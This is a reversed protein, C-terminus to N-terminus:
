QHAHERHRADHEVGARELSVRSTRRRGSWRVYPTATLASVILALLIAPVVLNQGSGNTPNTSSSFSMANATAIAVAVGPHRSATSLALVAREASSPGGLFHGAVLGGATVAVISLLTGDGVLTRFAPWARVVILVVGAALVLTALMALPKGARAASPLWHRVGLGVILPGLVTLAVTKVIAGVPTELPVGRWSGFGWLWAPIIVVALLSTAVLLGITYAGAGGAKATRSPLFPPVPSVALALLAVRVPTSVSFVTTLLITLLPMVVYMSVVTKALLAPHRLVHMANAATQQVGIGFVLLMISAELLLKAMDNGGPLRRM